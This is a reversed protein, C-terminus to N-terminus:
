PSRFPACHIRSPFDVFPSQAAVQFADAPPVNLRRWTREQQQRAYDRMGLHHATVAQVIYETLGRAIYPDKLRTVLAAAPLSPDRVVDSAGHGLFCVWRLRPFHGYRGQLLPASDILIADIEHADGHDPWVRLDVAGAAEALVRRWLAGDAGYDSALLVAM